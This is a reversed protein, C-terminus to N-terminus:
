TSSLHAKKEVRSSRSTLPYGVTEQFCFDYRGIQERLIAGALVPAIDMEKMMLSLSEPSVNDFAQKVDMFCAVLGLDAGWEQAAAMLRMAALIETANRGEEIGFIDLNEWVKDRRGVNKMEMGMLITLCGCYWKALVSQVCISRTQGELMEIVKKKAILVIINRLCTEIDEKNQGKYRLEFANKINQLARWPLTKLIETSIGEWPQEM